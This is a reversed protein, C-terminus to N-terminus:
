IKAPAALQHTFAEADALTDGQLVVKASYGETREIKTFPTDLPMVVTAPFGLKGAFYAVGQAHNGASHAVVGGAKDRPLSSLKNLAGRVKFSGTHQLNELKLYLDIGAARSL